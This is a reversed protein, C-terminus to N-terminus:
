RKEIGFTGNASAEVQDFLPRLYALNQFAFLRRLAKTDSQSWDMSAAAGTVQSLGTIKGATPGLFMDLTSRSAFRSLPKNAGILRYVDAGGRSMKSALANGDEFWGLVGGRSMGEKVWDQPRDSTKQGGTLANVKYSLMGLAVSAILGSLVNADRRQLNAVLIRETSSATFSKFQGLLSLVPNSMWLPKEQGPTVVAIDVERAVAGNLAQAAAKDTWDATNPLHVGDTVTGGKEFQQWIRTAMHGDIGSEALNKIQRESASGAAVKKTARLMESTSVHAAITKQIDTLPAQLNAIFFKDSVSQLTREFRSQPKYVDTVDDLAHQRANTSTDIGIGIARMQTKFKDFEPLNGTLYKFFPVWGDSFSTTLGYRFVTGALDPLSSIASAGMSTLNNIAKAGQAVRAMNRLNPSWGYVGRIRDRVAAIDRIVADREKGLATRVKESTAADIKAAYEETIRKLQETMRVDGFRETLLVDPVITRLHMGVIREVDQELFDRIMADPIAFERPNLSGRLDSAPGAGIQPGGMHVDYPLRGDPSGLIRDTIEQSRSRLEGDALERDSELIKKVAKDIETDASKLRAAGEPRANEAAYKERAKIAAKADKVSKGEWAAIEAEIRGRLHDVRVAADANGKGAAKTAATLEGDLGRLRDQIGKKTAQDTRLWGTVRDVFEPRKANIMEKNYVRTFYSEATKVGVDDPLLGAAIAREKWPDFVRQRVYQAAQQVQPITHRDGEQLAKAIETKFDTFTMLDNNQGTFREFQARLRPASTDANGFRYDSFLKDFTDAVDVHAGEIEMKAIRSLAPGQTPVEGGEFRYPTEALDAMARRGEISEASLVRRTPSLGASFELGSKELNLKRTDTAAAGAANAMGIGSQGTWGEEVQKAWAKDFMAQTEAKAATIKAVDAPSLNAADLRKFTDYIAHAQNHVEAIRRPVIQIEASMGNGLDAQVHVARYGAKPTEIKNDLGLIRFKGALGRVVDGAAGESDVIIRGGIYDSIESGSKGNAIKAEVGAFDKVRAKSFEAGDINAVVDQIDKSFAPEIKSAATHLAKFDNSGQVITKNSGGLSGLKFDGFSMNEGDLNSPPAIPRTTSSSFPEPRTSVQSPLAQTGPPALTDSNKVPVSTPGLDSLSNPIGASYIPAANGAHVDMANRDRDLLTEISRRETSGLLKAAGTGLLAGLVTASGIAAASEGATRTEQAAQLIGEQVSTQLGAALGISAASRALSYGGRATKIIEGAPLALTPDLTGAAIQAVTGLFGSAELTKRDADEQDIRRMISRTEGESRSAVFRDLHQQEFPTGKIIDLPNHNPDPPFTEDNLRGYLNVVPNDQRFAAGYVEQPTITPNPPAVGSPVRLASADQDPSFFPM